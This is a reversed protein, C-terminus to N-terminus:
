AIPSVQYHSILWHEDIRKLIVTLHYRLVSGDPRSFTPDVYASVVGDALPRIERIVYDVRLGAAHPRAYYEEVGKRGISYDPLAGQFLADETFQTAVDAPRGRDIGNKWGDLTETVIRSLDTM